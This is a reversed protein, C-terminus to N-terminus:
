FPIDFPIDDDSLETYVPQDRVKQNLATIKNLADVKTYHQRCWTKIHSGDFDPDDLANGVAAGDETDVGLELLLRFIKAAQPDTCAEQRIESPESPERSGSAMGRRELLAVLMDNSRTVAAGVQAIRGELVTTKERILDEVAIADNRQTEIEVDTEGVEAETRPNPICCNRQLAQLDDPLDIDCETLLRTATDVFRWVAFTKVDETHAHANSVFRLENAYSRGLRGPKDLFVPKWVHEMLRLLSRTDLEAIPKGYAIRRIGEQIAEDLKREEVAKETMVLVFEALPQRMTRLTRDVIEAASPITSLM